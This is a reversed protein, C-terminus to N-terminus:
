TLREETNTLHPIFVNEPMIQTKTLFATALEMTDAGIRLRGPPAKGSPAADVAM